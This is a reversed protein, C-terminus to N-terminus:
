SAARASSAPTSGPSVLDLVARVRRSAVRVEHLGEPDTRGDPKALSNMLKEVRAELARHLLIALEVCYM